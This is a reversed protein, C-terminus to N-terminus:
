GGGRRREARSLVSLGSDDIGEKLLAKHLMYRGYGDPLSDEFIGFGGNFPSPNAIFTESTLPLELPSISFGDILWERHYQFICLRNDPSLSLTGVMRDHYAVSLKDIKKM